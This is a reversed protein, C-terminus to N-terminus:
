SEDKSLHEPDEPLPEGSLESLKKRIDLIIEKDFDELERKSKTLGLLYGLQFQVQDYINFETDTPEHIGTKPDTM